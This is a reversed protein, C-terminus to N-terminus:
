VCGRTNSSCSSGCSFSSASNSGTDLTQGRFLRETTDKVSGDCVMVSVGKAELENIPHNGAGSVLLIRCDRLLEGLQQWRQRGSEQQPVKRSDVLVCSDNLYDMGYILVRGAEGLHQNVLTGERSAVAIYPRKGKENNWLSSTALFRLMNDQSDPEGILGSADARCRACHEMQPLIMSAAHRIKRISDSDPEPIFEFLTEPTRCFPLCNLISAGLRAVTTAIENVHTDNIGPIIVTNVKAVIGKRSLKELADLQREILKTAGEKERLLQHGHRVWSYIEAGIEPNVANITITVHSVQLEALEEIYEAVDLGNTSVCLLLDPYRERILRLTEMTKEPNAFPDGPGAIGVVALNPTQHMAYDLYRLAEHPSLVKSTVGPRNENACDYKRNCYNCQINCKPAVPLHIRGYTHKASSSFCPHHEINPSM